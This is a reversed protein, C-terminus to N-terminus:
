RSRRSRVGTLGTDRRPDQEHLIRVVREVRYETLWIMLINEDPLQLVLILRHRLTESPNPLM